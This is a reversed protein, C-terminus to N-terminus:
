NFKEYLYCLGILIHVHTDHVTLDNTSTVILDEYKKDMLGKIYFNSKMGIRRNMLSNYLTQAESKKQPDKCFVEFIKSNVSSNKESGYFGDEDFLPSILTLWRDKLPEDAAVAIDCHDFFRYRNYATSNLLYKINNKVINVFHLEVPICRNKLEVDIRLYLYASILSSFIQFNTKLLNDINNAYENIKSLDDKYSYIEALLLYEYTYILNNESKLTTINSQLYFSIKDLDTSSISNVSLTNAYKLGAYAMAQRVLDKGNYKEPKSVDFKM